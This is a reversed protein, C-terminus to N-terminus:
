SRYLVGIASVTSTVVTWSRKEIMEMCKINKNIPFYDALSASMKWNLSPTMCSVVKNHWAIILPLFHKLNGLSQDNCYIKMQKSKADTQSISQPLRNEDNYHVEIEHTNCGKMCSNQVVTSTRWWKGFEVMTTWHNKLWCFKLDTFDSASGILKFDWLRESCNFADSWVYM